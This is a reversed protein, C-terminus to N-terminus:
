EVKCWTDTKLKTTLFDGFDGRGPSEASRLGLRVRVLPAALLFPISFKSVFNCALDM